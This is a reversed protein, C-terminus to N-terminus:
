VGFLRQKLREITLSLPALKVMSVTDLERNYWVARSMRRVRGLFGDGKGAYSVILRSGKIAVVQGKGKSTLVWQGVKLDTSPKSIVNVTSRYTM